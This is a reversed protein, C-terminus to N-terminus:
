CHSRELTFYIFEMTGERWDMADAILKAWSTGLTSQAWHAAESKSAVQGNEIVFLSRCMTLIAYVLYEGRRFREPSPFPPSWWERLSGRVAERLDDASVPDILGTLPPGALAIGKERLIWRQIIWDSGLTEFAFHGDMGLWPIPAHAPDHRRIDDKPIYAGELKQSWALESTFLRAHIEKLALFTKTPLPDETIVLFDIDSTQPNFDGYALSGHLYFGIFSEGLVSQVDSLLLSLTVNLDSYPTHYTIENAL